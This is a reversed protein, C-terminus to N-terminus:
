NEGYKKVTKSGTKWVTIEKGTNPNKVVTAARGIYQQSSRGAGDIKIPKVHLPDSMANNIDNKTVGRLIARSESHSYLRTYSFQKPAVMSGGSYAGMGVTGATTFGEIFFKMKAVVAQQREQEAKAAWDKRFADGYAEEWLAQVASPTMGAFQQYKQQYQEMTGSYTGEHIEADFSPEGGSNIVIEGLMMTTNQEDAVFDPCDDGACGGNPDTLKVPNNGMSTYPSHYQKMPDPSLWRGIVPDLMRLQFSSWGTEEDEESFEGQYGYRYHNDENTKSTRLVSGFPYLNTGKKGRAGNQGPVRLFHEPVDELASESYHYPIKLCGM